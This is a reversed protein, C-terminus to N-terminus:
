QGTEDAAIPEVRTVTGLKSSFTVRSRVLKGFVVGFVILAFIQVAVTTVVLVDRQEYVENNVIFSFLYIMLSTTLSFADLRNAASSRYPERYFVYAASLLIVMAVGAYRVGNTEPIVGVFLAVALRRIFFVYAVYYQDDKFSAFFWGSFAPMLRFASPAPDGTATAAKVRRVAIVLLIGFLAAGGLPYIIIPLIKLGLPVADCSYAPAVALYSKETGPDDVCRLLSLSRVSMPFYVLTLVILSVTLMSQVVSTRTAKSILPAAIGISAWALALVALIVTWSLLYGIGFDLPGTICAGALGTFSIQTVDYIEKLIGLSTPLGFGDLSISLSQSFFLLIMAYTMFTLEGRQARGAPTNELQYRAVRRARRVFTMVALPVSTVLIFMIILLPVGASTCSLCLGNRMFFGSECEACARGTHGNRCAFKDLGDPNCPSAALVSSECKVVARPASASPTPFWGPEVVATAQNEFGPCAVHDSCEICTNGITRVYGELCKCMALNHFAPDALVDLKGTRSRLSPCFMNRDELFAGSSEEVQIFAPLAASVMALLAAADFDAPSAGLSMMRAMAFDATGSTSLTGATELSARLSFRLSSLDTAPPSREDVDAYLGDAFVSHAMSTGRIDISRLALYTGITEQVPGILGPNNSLNLISLRTQDAALALFAAPGALANGAVSFREIAKFGTLDFATLQLPGSNLNNNSVDIEQVGTEAVNSTPLLGLVDGIGATLGNDSMLFRRLGELDKWNCTQRDPLATISNRSLDLEVLSLPLITPAETLRNGALNLLILESALALDPLPSQLANDSLDLYRLDPSAAVNDPIVGSFANGGAELLQLSGLNGLSSPIEGDLLNNSVRLTQLSPLATDIDDPLSGSFANSQMNLTTLRPASPFPSPLAGSFANENISLSVLEPANRVLNEPFSGVLGNGVLDLQWLSTMASWADPIVSGALAPNFSLSLVRLGAVNAMEDPLPGTLSAVDMRVVHMREMAGFSPPLAANMTVARLSFGSLYGDPTCSFLFIQRCYDFQEAAAAAGLALARAPVLLDDQLFSWSPGNLDLFLTALREVEAMVMPEQFPRLVVSATERLRLGVTNSVYWVPASSPDPAQPVATPPLGIRQPVAEVIIVAVAGLRAALQAKDLSSCETTGTASSGLLLIVSNRVDAEENEVRCEDARWPQAVVLPADIAAAEAPPFGGTWGGLVAFCWFM